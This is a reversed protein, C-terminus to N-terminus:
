AARLCALLWRATEDEPTGEEELVFSESAGAESYAARTTDYAPMANEQPIRQNLGDVLGRMKLPNPALTAALDCLDAVTLIGPVIVDHPVYCFPSELIPAFSVLGGRLYVAAIGPEFIAGLLALVGGLPESLAPYPEADLPM